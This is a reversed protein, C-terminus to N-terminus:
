SPRAGSPDAALGEIEVLLDSRCLEARVFQPQRVNPFAARVSREIAPRDDPRVHYIRLDRYSGLASRAAPALHYASRTLAALNEFTEEIQATLHDRHVSDEDLVSATGGVLLLRDASWPLLTARAFCPPVPGFRRSYHHPARQRPNAVPEGPSRAALVYVALADGGHGVASAAPLVQAFRDTGGFWEVFARQRGANFRMYRDLGDGGDALIAPVFNWIRLAHRTPSARMTRGVQRYLEFTARELEAGALGAAGAASASFVAFQEPRAAALEDAWAAAGLGGVNGAPRARAGISVGEGGDM